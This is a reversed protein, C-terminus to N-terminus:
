RAGHLHAALASMMQSGGFHALVALAVVVAIGIALQRRTRRNV